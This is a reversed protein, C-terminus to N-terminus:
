LGSVGAALELMLDGAACAGVLDSGYHSLVFHAQREPRSWLVADLQHVQVEGAVEVMPRLRWWTAAGSATELPNELPASFLTEGGTLLTLLSGADTPAGDEHPVVRLTVFSRPTFTDGEGMLAWAALHESGDTPPTALSHMVSAVVAAAEQADDGFEAVVAGVFWDPAEQLPLPLWRPHDAVVIEGTV